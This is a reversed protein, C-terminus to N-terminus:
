REKGLFNLSIHQLNNLMVRHTIFNGRFLGEDTFNDFGVRTQAGTFLSILATARSFLEMDISVDIRKKWITILAAITSTVFSGLDKDSITIVNEEPIINLLDVSERNKQFILFFVNAAGFQEVAKKLM